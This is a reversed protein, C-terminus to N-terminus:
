SAPYLWRSLLRTLRPMIVWTLMAVPIATSIAVGFPFPLPPVIFGLAIVQPLLACWTVIAMKWKAPPGHASPFGPLSFWTELGSRVLTHDAGVAISDIRRLLDAVDPAGHWRDLDSQNAFRLLVVYDGASTSFVSSGELSASRAASQVLETVLGEFAKSSSPAVRRELVLKVPLADSRDDTSRVRAQNMTAENM